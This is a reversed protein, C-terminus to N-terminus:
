AYSKHSRATFGLKESLEASARFLAEKFSVKREPTLRHRFMSIGMAAVIRSSYDRIPAAMCCLGPMYEEDDYAMGERRVMALEALLERPATRTHPTLKELKRRNGYLMLIENDSLGALFAKGLATCHAPAKHGMGFSIRIPEINENHSIFVIETGQLIAMHSTEHCERTLQELIPVGLALLPTQHKLQEGLRAVHSGLLYKSTTLDFVLYEAAELTAVLRHVTSKPAKLTDSLETIGLGGKSAALAELVRLAKMLSKVPKKHNRSARNNAPRM